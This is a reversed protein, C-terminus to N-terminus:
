LSQFSSNKFLHNGGGSWLKRPVSFMVLRTTPGSFPMPKGFLKVGCFKGIKEFNVDLVEFSSLNRCLDGQIYNFGALLGIQNLSADNPLFGEAVPLRPNHCSQNLM